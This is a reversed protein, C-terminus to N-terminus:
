KYQNNPYNFAIILLFVLSSDTNKYRYVLLFRRTFICTCVLYSMDVDISSEEEINIIMDYYLDFDTTKVFVEYNISDIFLIELANIELLNVGGLLAFVKNSFIDDEAYKYAILTAALLIRYM